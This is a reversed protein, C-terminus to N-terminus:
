AVGRRAALTRAVVRRRVRVRPGRVATARTPVLLAAATELEEAEGLDWLHGYTNMTTGYDAHGLRVQIKKPSWKAHILASAHSHRLDHPRPRRQLRSECGCSSVEHAGYKPKRGRGKWAPPPPMHEPCRQAAAVAPWWYTKRFNDETWLGGRPATFLYASLRRGKVMDQLLRGTSDDVPVARIGARSKPPGITGDDKLTQRVQVVTQARNATIHEVQLALLEGLRLGTALAVRVIGHIRPDAHNLILQVEHPRLFMGEFKTRKPLNRSNKRAGPQPAAPNVSIWRPVAAGLCTQGVRYQKGITTPSLKQGAVTNRNRNGRTARQSSMWATWGQIVADDIETLRLHGLKPVVRTTLVWRYNKITSPEIDRAQERERLWMDVWARFTPAQDDGPDTGLIAAYVEPRTINHERAEVLEKAADVLKDRAETPGSFTCSQRAGDRSGGLRWNLRV